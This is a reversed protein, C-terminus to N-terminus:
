RDFIKNAVEKVYTEHVSYDEGYTKKGNDVAVSQYAKRYKAVHALSRSPIESDWLYWYLASLVSLEPAYAFRSIGLVLAMGYSSRIMASKSKKGHVQNICLIRISDHEQELVYDVFMFQFCAAVYQLLIYGNEYYVIKEWDVTDHQETVFILMRANHGAKTWFSAVGDGHGHGMLLAIVTYILQGDDYDKTAINLGIAADVLLSMKAAIRSISTPTNTKNIAFLGFLPLFRVGTFNRFYFPAYYCVESFFNYSIFSIFAQVDTNAVEVKTLHSMRYLFPLLSAVKLLLTLGTLDFWNWYFSWSVDIYTAVLFTTAVLVTLWLVQLMVAYKFITSGDRAFHVGIAFHLFTYHFMGAALLVLLISIRRTGELTLSAFFDNDAPDQGAILEKMHKEFEHRPKDSVEYHSDGFNHRDSVPGHFGSYHLLHNLGQIDTPFSVVVHCSRKNHDVYVPYSVSRKASINKNGYQLINFSVNLPVLADIDKKM